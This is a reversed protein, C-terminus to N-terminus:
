VEIEDMQELRTLWDGFHPCVNRLNALGISEALLPGAVNEDYQPVRNKIRQKPHTQPGHDIDEPSAFQNCDRCLGALEAPAIEYVTAIRQPDSLVLAEFEHVQLYPLFRADNIEAALAQQLAIAQLRGTPESMGSDYGPYDPPLSYLDVMMSFRAERSRDEKLWNRMDSLAHGFTNLVGGRPIRGRRRKHLGTFRPPHLYVNYSALHPQLVSMAFAAETQGEVTLYLRKM